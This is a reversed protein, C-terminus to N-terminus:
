RQPDESYEPFSFTVKFLDGDLTIDFSGGQAEVISRAIFLGLGSGETSRSSDGRIFRETLEEPRVNMKQRSINKVTACVRGDVNSVDIYVRTGEMAYKGINNFLNEMVRWMRRSDAFIVGPIDNKEFVLSLGKEDLKESFEGISQNILETLNLKERNLEINGSSLKSAEVLDDTLQKLRQAKGDLIDIYGKAPEDEIKLRKLLDVYNIISTLPTKIDHSVNTILDTKMQEDKMSTKVAKRIGEGIHNVADALERSAGHLHELDLLSDEEGDRIRTIGEVIENQEATRRFLMMGVAGDLLVMGTTLLLAIAMNGELLRYVVLIGALNAFLFINYPLLMSIVTSRHRLVMAVFSSLERWVRRLISNEWLIGVKIRRVLSYWFLGTGLSVYVGYLAFMGYRYFMTMQIGQTEIFMVGTEAALNLILRYGFIMGYVFAAGLALFVETWIHDFGNLYWVRKGNEDLALGATVTMYVAITLWILALFAIAAFFQNVKPIIRQYAANAEYFIDEEVTYNTDVAMWIHITDAFSYGSESILGDIESERLVTNGEFILKDPHYVLYRRYESFYETVSYDEMNQIEPVNTGTYASMGSGSMMRVVYKINSEEQYVNNYIQYQQYNRTVEQIMAAVNNQLYIYDVWNDVYSTLHKGGDIPAYRGLLMPVAVMLVGDDERSMEIDNLNKGVIYSFVMDELQAQTCDQLKNWLMELEEKSKGSGTEELFDDLTESATMESATTESVTEQDPNGDDVSVKDDPKGVRYFADFTLQGYEDLTFNEPYLCYGFYNVFEPLSMVRNTHDVGSKGWKIIEDLEYEVTTSCGKDVGMRQAYATVDIKKSFDLKGDTELQERIIVLRLIDSLANRFLEHYLESDEFELETDAPFIKYTKPGEITDATFYSNLSLGAAILFAAAAILHQILSLCFRKLIPRKKIIRLKMHFARGGNGGM